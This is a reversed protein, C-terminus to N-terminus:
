TNPKMPKAGLDELKHWVRALARVDEMADHAGSFSEGLLKTHADQLKPWAFGFRGPEKFHHSATIMGCWLDPKPAEKQPKLRANAVNFIFWDFATNYAIVRDAMRMYEALIHHAMVPSVGASECVEKSIGHVAEAKPHIECCIPKIIMKCEHYLKRDCYFQFALQVADPQSEHDFPLSRNNLGTTEYDFFLEKM